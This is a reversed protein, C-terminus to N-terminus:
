FWTRMMVIRDIIKESPYKLIIYSIVQARRTAYVHTCTTDCEQVEMPQCVRGYKARM